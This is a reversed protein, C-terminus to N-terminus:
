QIKDAWERRVEEEMEEETVRQIREGEDFSVEGELLLCEVIERETRLLDGKKNYHKVGNKLAARASAMLIIAEEFLNTMGGKAM